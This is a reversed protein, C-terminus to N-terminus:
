HELRAPRSTRLYSGQPHAFACTSSLILRNNGWDIEEYALVENGFEALGYVQSAISVKVTNAVNSIPTGSLLNQGPNLRLIFTNQDIIRDIYGSIILSREEYIAMDPRLWFTNGEVIMYNFGQVGQLDLVTDGISAASALIGGFERTTSVPTINFRITSPVNNPNYKSYLSSFHREAVQEIRLDAYANSLDAISMTSEVNFKNTELAQFTPYARIRGVSIINPEALASDKPYQPDAQLYDYERTVDEDIGDQHEHETMITVEQGSRTVTTTASLFTSVTFEKADLIVLTQLPAEFTSWFNYQNRTTVLPYVSNIVKYARTVVVDPVQFYDRGEYDVVCRSIQKNEDIEAHALAFVGTDTEAPKIVLIPATDYDLGTPFSGTLSEISHIRGNEKSSVTVSNSGGLDTSITSGDAIIRDPLIQFEVKNSGLDSIVTGVSEGGSFVLTGAPYSTSDSLTMTFRVRATFSAERGRTIGSYDSTKFQSQKLGIIATDLRFKHIGTSTGLPIAQAPPASLSDYYNTYLFVGRDRFSYGLYYTSGSTLGPIDANGENTYVLKTGSIFGSTSQTSYDEFYIKNPEGISLFLLM